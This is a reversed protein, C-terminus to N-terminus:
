ILPAFSSTSEERRKDDDRNKLQCCVILLIILIILIIFLLVGVIIWVTINTNSGGGTPVIIHQDTNQQSLQGPNSHHSLQTPVHKTLTKSHLSTKTPQSPEIYFCGAQPIIDMSILTAMDDYYCGSGITITKADIDLQLNSNRFSPTPSEKLKVYTKVVNEKFLFENVTLVSSTDINGFVILEKFLTSTTSKTGYINTTYLSPNTKYAYILGTPLFGGCTCQDFTMYRMEISKTLTGGEMLLGSGESSSYCHSFNTYKTSQIGNGIAVMYNPAKAELIVCNSLKNEYEVWSYLKFAGCYSDATNKVFCCSMVNNDHTHAYMGGGIWGKTDEITCFFLSFKAQPNDIYIAGNSSQTKIGKFVSNCVSVSSEFRTWTTVITPSTWDCISSSHSFLTLLM